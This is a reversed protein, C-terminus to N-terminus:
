PGAKGPDQFLPIFGTSLFCHIHQIPELEPLHAPQPTPISSPPPHTMSNFGQTHQRWEKPLHPLTVNGESSQQCNLKIKLISQWKERHWKMGSSMYPHGQGSETKRSAGDTSTISTKLHGPMFVWGKSLEKYSRNKNQNTAFRAPILRM